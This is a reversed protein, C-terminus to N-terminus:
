GCRRPVRRRRRAGRAGSRARQRHVGVGVRYQPRYRPGAGPATVPSSVPAPVLVTGRHRCRRRYRHRYRGQYRGRCRLGTVCIPGYSAWRPSPWRAEGRCASAAHASQARARITRARAGAGVCAAREARLPAPSRGRRRPVRRRRCVGRAGSRARQQRVDVDVPCRPRYRPGADTIIGTAIGTVVGPGSSSFLVPASTFGRAESRARPRRDGAGALCVGAGVCAAREAECDRRGRASM